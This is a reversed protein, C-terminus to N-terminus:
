GRARVVWMVDGGGVQDKWLRLATLTRERADKKRNCGMRVGDMAGGAGMYDHTCAWRSAM